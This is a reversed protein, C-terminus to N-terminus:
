LSVQKSPEGVLDLERARQAARRRSRVDLKRFIASVHHEVTRESVVLQHAIEGNGLDECLLELIEQERRTLGVPHESTSRRPGVPIVTAGIARLRRRAMLATATAGLEYLRGLADRLVAEDDSGLLALAADYPCGLADWAAAAGAHDDSIELQYPAAVPLDSSRQVGLRHEWVAIAGRTWPDLTTVVSAAQV